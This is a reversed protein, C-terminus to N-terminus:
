THMIRRNKYAYSIIDAAKEAYFRLAEKKMLLSRRSRKHEKSYLLQTEFLFNNISSVFKSGNNLNFTHQQQYLNSKARDFDLADERDHSGLIHYATKGDYSFSLTDTRHVNQGDGTSFVTATPSVRSGQSKAEKYFEEYPGMVYLSYKVSFIDYKKQMAAAEKLDRLLEEKTQSPCGALMYVLNKIKLIWTNKLVERISRASTGKKVFQLFRDSLSEVGLQFFRGGAKYVIKLTDFTLTKTPRVYCAFYMKLKRALINEALEKLRQASIESDTFFFDSAGYRKQLYRIDELVKNVSLKRYPGGYQANLQCFKCRSWPCGRSSSVPLILRPFFYEKLRLGDFNPAPLVNLDEIYSTENRVVRSNERWILNPINTYSKAHINRSLEAIALEGEQMVVFDIFDFAAMFEEIDYNFLAPGGFIVPIHSKQKIMRAFALGYYLQADVLISFGIMDPKDALIKKIEGEFCRAVIEENRLRQEAYRRLLKKICENVSYVYAHCEGIYKEFLERDFFLDRDKIIGRAKKFIAKEADLLDNQFACTTNKSACRMGCETCIRNLNPLRGDLIKNIFSPNLDILTVNTKPSYKELYAKLSAIGIPVCSPNTLPPFVLNINM